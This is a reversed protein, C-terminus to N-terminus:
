DIKRIQILKENNELIVDINVETGDQLEMIDRIEAPIYLILSKPRTKSKKQIKRTIRTILTMKEGGQTTYRVM